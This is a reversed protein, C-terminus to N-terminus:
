LSAPSSHFDPCYSIECFCYIDYIIWGTAGCLVDTVTGPVVCKQEAEKGAKDASTRGVVRECESREAWGALSPTERQRQGSRKDDPGECFCSLTHLAGQARPRFGSPRPPQLQVWHQQYFSGRLCSEPSACLPLSQYNVAGKPWELVRDGLGRGLLVFFCM